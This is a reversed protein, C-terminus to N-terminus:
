LVVTTNETMCHKGIYLAPLCPQIYANQRMCLAEDYWYMHTKYHQIVAASAQLWCSNTVTASCLRVAQYGMSNSPISWCFGTLRISLCQKTTTLTLIYVNSCQICHSSNQFIEVLQHVCVLVATFCRLGAFVSVSSLPGAGTTHCVNVKSSILMAAISALTALESTVNSRLGCVSPSRLPVPRPEYRNSHSTGYNGLAILAEDCKNSLTHNGKSYLELQPTSIAAGLIGSSVPTNSISVSFPDLM